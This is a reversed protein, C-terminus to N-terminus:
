SREATTETCLIFMVMIAQVFPRWHPAPFVPLIQVNPTLCVPDSPVSDAAKSLMRYALTGFLRRDADSSASDVSVLYSLFTAWFYYKRTKPFNIQLSM